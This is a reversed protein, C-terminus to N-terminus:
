PNTTLQYTIRFNVHAHGKMVDKIGCLCMGSMTESPYQDTVSVDPAGGSYVDVVYNCDCMDDASKEPNDTGVIPKGQVRKGNEDLLKVYVNHNNDSEGLGEFKVSIVRWFKQGHGVNAPTIHVGDLDPYNIKDSGNAGLRKDWYITPLAPVASAAPPPPAVMAVTTPPVRTAPIATPRPRTSTPPPTPTPIPTESPVSYAMKGKTGGSSTRTLAVPASIVASTNGSAGTNTLSIPGFASSVTTFATVPFAIFAFWMFFGLLVTARLKAGWSLGVLWTGLEDLFGSRARNPGQLRHGRVAGTESISWEAATRNTPM